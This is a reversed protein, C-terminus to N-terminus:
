KNQPLLIDTQRKTDESIDRFPYILHKTKCREFLTEPYQLVVDGGGKLFFVDVELLKVFYFLHSHPSLEVGTRRHGKLSQHLWYYM